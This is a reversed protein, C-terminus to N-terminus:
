VAMERARLPGAIVPAIRDLPSIVVIGPKTMVHTYIMTTAVSQHGLLLQVQRIDWGQELLHTAFSHRLTHPTVRKVIGAARAAVSITRSFHAPTTHWRVGRQRGDPGNSYRVSVSAFVYQWSWERENAPARNAVSDPLPVYGALRQLDREYLERRARLHDILEGRLTQPLMLLRDKKGKGQRVMIQARDFDIDRVRLTCCESIRMGTGYLLRAFLQCEGDIAGLLRQVEQVSLVTPLTTPRLSRLGRIDGLHDAGLEDGLVREYLFVIACIAQNQSSESLRREVAMHTLFAAVDTGRLAAPAQWTGDPLRHFRLFQEVWRKYQERTSRALHALRCARDLRELLKM